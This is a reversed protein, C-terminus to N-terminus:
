LIELDYSPLFGNDEGRDIVMEVEFLSRIGSLQMADGQMVLIRCERGGRVAM